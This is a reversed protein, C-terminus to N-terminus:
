LKYPIYLNLYISPHYSPARNIVGRLRSCVTRRTRVPHFSSVKLILLSATYILPRAGKLHSALAASADPMHTGM